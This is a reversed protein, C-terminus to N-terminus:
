RIPILCATNRETPCWSTNAGSVIQWGAPVDEDTEANVFTCVGIDRYNTALLGQVECTYLCQKSWEAGPEDAPIEGVCQRNTGCSAEAAKGECTSAFAGEKVRYKEKVNLIDNIFFNVILYSGLTIVIAWTTNIMIQKGKQVREANGGSVLWFVGGVVFYGLAVAGMGGLLMKILAQIAIAVDNFDCNGQKTCYAVEDLFGAQAIQPLIFFLTSILLIKTIQRYM